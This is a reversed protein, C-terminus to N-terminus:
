LGADALVAEIVSVPIGFRGALFSLLAGGSQFAVAAIELAFPHGLIYEVAGEAGKLAQASPFVVEGRRIAALLATLVKTVTATDM